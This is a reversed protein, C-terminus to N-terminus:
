RNDLLSAGSINKDHKTPVVVLKALIRFALCGVNYGVSVYWLIYPALELLVVCSNILATRHWAIGNWWQVKGQRRSRM